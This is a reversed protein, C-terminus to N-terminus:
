KIIKIADPICKVTVESHTGASEGDITWPAGGDIKINFSSSQVITLNKNKFTGKSLATILENLEILNAPRRIIMAEFKGDSFSVHDSPLKLIGGVSTTNLLSFLIVDDFDESGDDYEVSVKYDKVRTIEPIGALIYAFHGFINKFNQPTEYSTAAFIGFSATYVFRRDENFSAIDHPYPTGSVIKKTANLVNKPIGLATALDNTTGAPIYGITVTKDIEKLGELTQSVTGDGGCCIIFDFDTADRATDRADGSYETIHVTLDYKESLISIIQYFNTKAAQVGAKPNIILLAKANKLPM